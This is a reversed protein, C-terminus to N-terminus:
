KTVDVTGAQIAAGLARVERQLVANVKSALSHYGALGTVKKALTGVYTTNSFKGSATDKIVSTVSAGVGKVVSTLLVSAYQPTQVFADSDVGIVVSKHSSMSNGATAGGLGGAVPFIM